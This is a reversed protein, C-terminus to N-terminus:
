RLTLWALQGILIVGGLLRRIPSAGRVIEDVAWVMLAGHGIGQVQTRRDTSLHFLGLAVTALWVWLAPNPFQWVVFQGDASQLWWRGSGRRAPSPRIATPTDMSMDYGISLM